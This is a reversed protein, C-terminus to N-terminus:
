ANHTEKENTTPIVGKWSKPYIEKPLTKIVEIDEPRLRNGKSINEKAPLWRLNYISWCRSIDEPDNLDYLSMAIIHDVQYKLSKIELLTYGLKDAEKELHKICEEYNIGYDRSSLVKGKDSYLNLANKFCARLSRKIKYIPNKSWKRHLARRQAMIEPKKAHNARWAKSKAVYQPDSMRIAHLEKNREKYNERYAKEKAKGKESARYKAKSAKRNPAVYKPNDKRWKKSNKANREKIEPIDRYEAAKKLIVDKNKQYYEKKYALNEYKKKDYRAKSTKAYHEKNAYYHARNAKDRAEKNKLYNKNQTIKSNIYQKLVDTKGNDYKKLFSKPIDKLTYLKGKYEISKPKRKLPAWLNHKPKM